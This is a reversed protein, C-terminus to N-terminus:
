KKTFITYLVSIISVVVGALYFWFGIGITGLQYGGLSTKAIQENLAQWLIIADVVSIISFILALSITGKGSKVKVGGYLIGLGFLIILFAQVGLKDFGNASFVGGIATAWPLIPSIMMLAGGIICGIWGQNSDNSTAAIKYPSPRDVQATVKKTDLLSGCHECKLSGEVIDEKCFPCIVMKQKSVNSGDLMSGCHRCKIAGDKIEEKCFPCLM